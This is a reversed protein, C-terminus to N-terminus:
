PSAVGAEVDGDGASALVVALGQGVVDEGGLVGGVVVDDAGVPGLATDVTSDTVRRSHLLSFPLPLIDYSPSMMTGHSHAYGM